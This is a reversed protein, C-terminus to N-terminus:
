SRGNALGRTAGDRRANRALAPGKKEAAEVSSQVQIELTRRLLDRGKGLIMGELSDIVTGDAADVGVQRMELLFEEYAEALVREEFTLENGQAM